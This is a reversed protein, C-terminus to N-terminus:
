RFLDEISERFDEIAGREKWKGFTYGAYLAAAVLLVTIM